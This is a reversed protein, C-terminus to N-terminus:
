SNSVFVNAVMFAFSFIWLTFLYKSSFFLMSFIATSHIQVCSMRIEFFWLLFNVFFVFLLFKQEIYLKKRRWINNKAWNFTISIINSTSRWTAVLLSVRRMVSVTKKPQKNKNYSNQHNWKTENEYVLRWIHMWGNGPHKQNMINKKSSKAVLYYVTNPIWGFTQTCQTCQVVAKNCM